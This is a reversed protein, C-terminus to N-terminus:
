STPIGLVCPQSTLGALSPHANEPEERSDSEATMQNVLRQLEPTDAYRLALHRLSKALDADQDVIKASNANNILQYVLLERARRENSQEVHAMLQRLLALRRQRPVFHGDLENLDLMQFQYQIRLNPDQTRAILDRTLSRAEFILEETLRAAADSSLGSDNRCAEGLVSARADARKPSVEVARQFLVQSLHSSIDLDDPDLRHANELATHADQTRGMEMQALGMLMLARASQNSLAQHETLVRVVRAYFREQYLCESFLLLSEIDTEVQHDPDLVDCEDYAFAPVSFGILLLLVILKGEM